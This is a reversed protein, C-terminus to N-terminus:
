VRGTSRGVLTRVGPAFKRHGLGLQDPPHPVRQGELCLLRRRFFLEIKRQAFVDEWGPTAAFTGLQKPAGAVHTGLQWWDGGCSTKHVHTPLDAAQPRLDPM